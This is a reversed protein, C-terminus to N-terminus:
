TQYVSTWGLLQISFNMAKSLPGLKMALIEIEPKSFDLQVRSYWPPNTTTRKKREKLLYRSSKRGM